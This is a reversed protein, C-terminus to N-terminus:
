KTQDKRSCHWLFMIFWPCLFFEVQCTSLSVKWKKVKNFFYRKLKLNKTYFQQNRVEHVTKLYCQWVERRQTFSLITNRFYLHLFHFDSNTDIKRSPLYMKNEIKLSIVSLILNKISNETLREWLFLIDKLIFCRIFLNVFTKYNIECVYLWVCMCIRYLIWIVM